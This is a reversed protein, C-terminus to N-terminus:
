YILEFHHITKPKYTCGFFIIFFRQLFAGSDSGLGGGGGGGSYFMIYLGFLCSWELAVFNINITVITTGQYEIM